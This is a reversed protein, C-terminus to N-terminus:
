EWAISRASPAVADRVGNWRVARRPPKWRLVGLPPAAYPIARYVAAPGNELGRVLGSEVRVTTANRHAAAARPAAHAPAVPGAALVAAFLLGALPRITM